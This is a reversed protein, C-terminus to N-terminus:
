RPQVRMLLGTPYPASTFKVRVPKDPLPVLRLRATITAVAVVIETRAFLNGLCQRTGAGFPVYAGPPLRRAREPEWRDPLFRHPDPFVAPDHHLAHPSVVVEGGAPVLVDGLRVDELARRMLIWVPYRRLVEDVVQGVYALRPVDAFTVPRGGLVRDVEEHVREEVSPHQAIEHFAWALAIATTEIGATLLTLVEDYTQEDTMGGAEDRAHLLTSLLDGHDTGDARRAAIVDLVIAKMATVARDFERNGPLPLKEVWSPSLARVMGQKIITFISRRIEEVVPEGIGTSFLAEGVIAVALGQMDREVVRVEGPRWADALDATARRMVEVYGAIRDRHFAPQVLRRQRRHFPGNSLLLGNGLYPQFKDFMAGKRFSSGEGVLVAHVLRPSTVFYTPMPGLDVRVVEGRERLSATFEARRRLIGLTHGLLPLRGPAVPVAPISM